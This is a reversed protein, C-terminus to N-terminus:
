KAVGRLAEDLLRKTEDDAKCERYVPKHALLEALRADSKKARLEMAAREEAAEKAAKRDKEALEASEKLLRGKERAAAEMAEVHEARWKRDTAESGDMRGKGYVALALLADALAKGFPGLLFSLAAKV